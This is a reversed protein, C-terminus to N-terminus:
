TFILPLSCFIHIHIHNPRLLSRFTKPPPSLIPTQRHLVHHREEGAGGSGGTRGQLYGMEVGYLGLGGM